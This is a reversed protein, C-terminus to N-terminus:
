FEVRQQLDLFDTQAIKSEEPSFPLRIPKQSRIKYNLLLGCCVDWSYLNYERNNWPIRTEHQGKETLYILDYRKSAKEFDIIKWFPFLECEPSSGVEDILQILDKQSDIIYTRTNKPLTIISGIKYERFNNESCWKQWASKFKRQPHYPCIWLGGSPKPFLPINEISDFMDKLLPAKGLSIWKQAVAVENM